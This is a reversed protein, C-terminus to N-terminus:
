STPATDRRTASRPKGGTRSSRPGGDPGLPWVISEGEVLDRAVGDFGVRIPRVTGTKTESRIALADQTLDIRLAHGRYRVLFSLRAIPAPLAPKFWLGDARAELGTFCRQVVDVTGAMAGLHIGERTTGGQVDSVDSELAQVFLRWSHERDFRALVWSHVVRSLTSGHSTRELYYAITNAITQDDFAYGLGHFLDRLQDSSFLYFLMLADAQKSLKYRDPSKGEAELIRDLRQIDGYKQRYADWDFEELTAYGEFQSITGGDHFPVYMRRSIDVWRALEDDDIEFERFFTSRRDPPLLAVLDLARRLCFVTMVNTYANDDLGPSRRDPFGEHYEDPGVVGRIHYRGDNDDFTALSSLFKAIELFVAAGELIMFERDETVEYYNWLNYAIACNVHRQLHTHDPLWRGSRPNLHLAQSEERGNSGSQWPFMAGRFGAKKAALLAQPIRRYRYRLLERTIVANRLNFLPFIFLEDWFIHGRYAEGHWGRAPVGIDLDTVHPSVTQLLHLVHLRLIRVIRAEEITGAGGKAAEDESARPASSLTSVPSRDLTLDLDYSDWLNQWVRAHSAHLRETSRAHELSSLAEALPESIAADRSTYVAVVKELHMTTGPSLAACYHHGVRGGHDNLPRPAEGPRGGVSLRQRVACVVEVRSQTTRVRLYAREHDEVRADVVDLHRDELARYRPVGANRVTGDLFSRLEIAGTWNESTVDVDLAALHRQLMSVFRRERVSTVRGDPDRVRYARHLTATKLDLAQEYSLVELKSPDIWDGGEIRMQVPLWNPLNVLDENEIFRGAVESTRRNYLGAVYTGPYHDADARSEIAAGRTAFFGNGVTCLAERLGEEAADYGRYLWTWPSANSANSANSPNFPTSANPPSTTM